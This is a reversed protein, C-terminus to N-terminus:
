DVLMQSIFMLVKTKYVSIILSLFKFLAHFLLLTESTKGILSDEDEMLLNVQANFDLCRLNEVARYDGSALAQTYETLNVAFFM